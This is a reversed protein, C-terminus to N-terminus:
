QHIVHLRKLSRAVLYRNPPDYGPVLEQLVKKFGSKQFDNFTRGDRIVCSILLEHLQKKNTINTSSYKCKRQQHPLILERMNHKFILHKRLTSTSGNNTSIRKNDKCLCCVAYNPDAHRVAYRWVQSARSITKLNTKDSLVTRPHDTERVQSLEFNSNFETVVRNSSSSNTSNKTSVASASRSVM